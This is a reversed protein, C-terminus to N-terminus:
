KETEKLKNKGGLIFLALGLVVFSIKIVWAMTKGWDYIWVLLKPVRGILGLIIAFVGFLAIYTGIKRM